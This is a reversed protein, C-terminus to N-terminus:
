VFAHPRLACSIGGGNRSVCRGGRPPAADRQGKQQNRREDGRIQAKALPSREQLSQNGAVITNSTSVTIGTRPAPKDGRYTMDIINYNIFLNNAIVVQCVELTLSPGRGRVVADAM